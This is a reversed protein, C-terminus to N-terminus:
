KMMKSYLGKMQENAKKVEARVSSLLTRADTNTPDVEVLNKLDMLAREFEGMRALAQARRYLGKVNQTDEKLVKSCAAEAKAFQELKLHCMAENLLCLRVAAKADPSASKEHEFLRVAASYKALGFRVRGTKFALAGADKLLMLRELKQENKLEWSDAAKTFSILKVEMVTDEAKLNSLNLSPDTWAEDVSATVLAEENPVIKVLVAELAESHKGSGPVVQVTQKPILVAKTKKSKFVIEAITSSFENPCDFTEGKRITKKFVIKSGVEVSCDNVSRVESLTVNGTLLNGDISYKGDRVELSCTEGVKMDTLFKDLVETPLFLDVLSSPDGITYVVSNLSKGTSLNYSFVVEDGTKPKKFQTTKTVVSKIVGGDSFLDVDSGFSLLEVEFVLTAGGPIKPPSGSDGYAYKSPLTFVAKEGKKMTAVGLDWGKIVQGLGLKFKFPEGRDRSSDFKSGDSALTGVYHVFVDDGKTPYKTESEKATVIIDKKIESPLVPPTSSYEDLSVDDDDMNDDNGCCNGTHEHHGM